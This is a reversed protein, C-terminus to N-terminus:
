IYFDTDDLFRSQVLLQEVLVHEGPLALDLAELPLAEVVLCGLGTVSGEDVLGEGTGFVLVGLIRGVGLDELTAVLVVALGDADSLIRGGVEVDGAREFEVIRLQLHVFDLELTALDLPPGGQLHGHLVLVAKSVNLLTRKCWLNPLTSRIIIM